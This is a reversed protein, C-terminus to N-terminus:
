RDAATSASLLTYMTVTLALDLMKRLGQVQEPSLGLRVGRGGRAISIETWSLQCCTSKRPVDRAPRIARRPRM